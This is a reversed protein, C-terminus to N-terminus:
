ADNVGKMIEYTLGAASVKICAQDINRGNDVQTAEVLKAFEMLEHPTVYDTRSVCDIRINTTRHITM